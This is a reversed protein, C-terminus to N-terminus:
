AAQSLSGRPLLDKPVFAAEEAVEAVMVADDDVGAREGPTGCHPCNDGPAIRAAKKRIMTVGDIERKEGYQSNRGVLTALSGNVIIKKGSEVKQDRTLQRPAAVNAGAKRRYSEDNREYRKFATGPNCLDLARDKLPALPQWEFSMQSWLWRTTESM